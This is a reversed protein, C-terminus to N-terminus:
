KDLDTLKMQYGNKTHKSDISEQYKTEEKIKRISEIAINKVIFLRNCELCKKGDILAFVLEKGAYFYVEIDPSFILKGGCDCVKKEGKINWMEVFNNEAIDSLVLSDDDLLHEKYAKLIKGRNVKLRDVTVKEKKVKQPIPPQIKIASAKSPKNKDKINNKKNKKNDSFVYETCYRGGWCKESKLKCYDDKKIYYKCNRRDHKPENSSLTEIHWITGTM